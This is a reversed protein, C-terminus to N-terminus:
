KQVNKRAEVYFFYDEQQYLTAGIVGRRIYYFREHRIKLREAGKFCPIIDSILIVINQAEM